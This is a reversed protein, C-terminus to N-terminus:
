IQVIIRDTGHAVGIRKTGGLAATTLNGDLDAYYETGTVLGSGNTNEGSFIVLTDEGEGVATTTVGVIGGHNTLFDVTRACGDLSSNNGINFIRQPSHYIFWPTIANAATLGTDTMETGIASFTNSSLYLLRSANSTTSDFYGIAFTYDSIKAISCFYDATAASGTNEILVSAGLTLTTGSLNFTSVEHYTGGFNAFLAMQSATTCVLSGLSTGSTGGSNYKVELPTGATLTTGSFTLAMVYTKSNTSDKFYICHATTGEFTEAWLPINRNGNSLVTYSSGWSVSSGSISLSIAKLVDSDDNYFMLCETASIKVLSLRQDPIATVNKQAVSGISPTSDLSSVVYAEFQTTSSISIFLATTSDIMVADMYVASTTADITTASDSTVTGSTPSVVIQDVFGRRTGSTRPTSFRVKMTSSVDFVRTKRSYPTEGGPTPSGVATNKTSFDTARARYILGDSEIAAVSGAHMLVGSTFVKQSTLGGNVRLGTVPEYSMYGNTLSGIAIGFVDTAFDLMGNLNGIRVREFVTSWPSGTHTQISIHPANTADATQYIVGDGSAGWDAIAAGARFTANTGSQKVCVYRFFTTQDSVSSVTMWNENGSGDKVQLVDGVSFVQIHGTAPDDVDVNFTTPSTVSTFDTKLKAASKSVIQSGANVHVEGYSLVQSHFEGRANINNFEANGTDGELSFGRLGTSYTSTRIRKNVGDIVINPTGSGVTITEATSDLSIGGSSFTTATLSWGGITGSQARIAGSETVWFEANARDLYTTGAWFYIDDAGTSESSLGFTNGVNRIYTAGIEFGGIFGAIGRIVGALTVSFLADAFLKAGLWIGERNAHFVEDGVGVTMEDVAPINASGAQTTVAEAPTVEVLPINTYPDIIQDESM